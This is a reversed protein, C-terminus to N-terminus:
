LIPRSPSKIWGNSKDPKQRDPIPHSPLKSTIHETNRDNAIQIQIIPTLETENVWMQKLALSHNGIMDKSKPTTEPIIKLKKM